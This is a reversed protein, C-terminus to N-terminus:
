IYINTNRGLATSYWLAWLQIYAFIDNNFPVINYSSVRLPVNVSSTYQESPKTPTLPFQDTEKIRM